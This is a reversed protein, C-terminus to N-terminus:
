GEFKSISHCTVKQINALKTKGSKQKQIMSTEVPWTQWPTNELLMPMPMLTLPPLQCSSNLHFKSKNQDKRQNNSPSYSLGRNQTPYSIIHCNM